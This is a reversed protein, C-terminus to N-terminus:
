KAERAMVAASGQQSAIQQNIFEQVSESSKKICTKFMKEHDGLSYEDVLKMMILTTGLLVFMMDEISKFPEQHSYLVHMKEDFTM